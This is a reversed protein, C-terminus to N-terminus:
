SDLPDRFSAAVQGRALPEDAWQMGKYRVADSVCGYARLIPKVLGLGLCGQLMVADAWYQRPRASPLFFNNECLPALRAPPDRAPYTSRM